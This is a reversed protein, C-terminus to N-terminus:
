DGGPSTQKSEMSLKKKAENDNRIRRAQLQIMQPNLDLAQCVYFFSLTYKTNRKEKSFIWQAAHIQLVHAGYDCYSESVEPETYDILASLLISACLRKEPVYNHATKTKDALDDHNRIKKRTRRLLDAIEGM